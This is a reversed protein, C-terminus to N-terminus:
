FMQSVWIKDCKTQGSICYITDKVTLFLKCWLLELNEANSFLDKELFGNDNAM